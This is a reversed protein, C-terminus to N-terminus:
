RKALEPDLRGLASELAKSDNTFIIDVAHTERNFEAAAFEHAGSWRWSTEKPKELDWGLTSTVMRSVADAFDGLDGRSDFRLSLHLLVSEEGSPDQPRFYYGRARGGGWGESADYADEPDSGASAFWNYIDFEGFVFSDQAEWGDDLASRLDIAKPHKPAERKFYKEPHLVQETTTPPDKYLADVGKWGDQDFVEYVFFYCEYYNFYFGREFYSLGDFSGPLDSEEEGRQEAEAILADIEADSFEEEPESLEDYWTEGFEDDMYEYSTVEADGERVCSLTTGLETNEFDDDDYDRFALSGDQLSHAYEHALTLRESMDLEGVGDVLVMVDEELSYFGAVSSAYMETVAEDIDVEPGIVHMLRLIKNWTETDRKEDEEDDRFKAYYERLAERSVTGETIDTKAPLERIRAVGDRIEHLGEKFEASFPTVSPLPV